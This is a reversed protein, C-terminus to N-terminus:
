PRTESVAVVTWSDVTRLAIEHRKGGIDITGHDTQDAMARLEGTSHDGLSSRALYKTPETENAERLLGSTGLASDSILWADDEVICWHIGRPAPRASIMDLLKNLSQEFHVIAYVGDEDRVPSAYGVVWRESDPSHYIPSVLAGHDELEKSPKFFVADSEDPSLDPGVVGKAVRVFEPGEPAILCIEDVILGRQIGLLLREVKEKLLERVADRDSVMFAKVSDDKAATAAARKAKTHLLDFEAAKEAVLEDLASVRAAGCLALAAGIVMVALPLSIRTLM